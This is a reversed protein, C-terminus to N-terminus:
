IRVPTGTNTLVENLVLPSGITHEGRSAISHKQVDGSSAKTIPENINFFDCIDLLSYNGM